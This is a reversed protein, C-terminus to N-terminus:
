IEADMRDLRVLPGTDASFGIRQINFIWSKKTLRSAVTMNEVINTESVAV